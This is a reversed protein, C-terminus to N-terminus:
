WLCHLGQREGGGDAGIKRYSATSDGGGGGAMGVELTEGGADDLESAASLEM